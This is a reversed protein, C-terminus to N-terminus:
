PRRYYRLEAELRDVERWLACLLPLATLNVGHHRRHHEIRRLEYLANADFIPEPGARDPGFLGLQCYHRLVDPHVGGLSAATELSYAVPADAPLCALTLTPNTYFIFNTM